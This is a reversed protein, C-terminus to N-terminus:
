ALNFFSQMEERGWIDGLAMVFRYYNMTEDLDPLIQYYWLM